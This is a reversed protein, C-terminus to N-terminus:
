LFRFKFKLDGTHAHSELCGDNANRNLEYIQRGGPNLYYVINERDAVISIGHLFICDSEKSVANRRLGNLYVKIPEIHDSPSSRKHLPVLVNSRVSRLHRTHVILLM